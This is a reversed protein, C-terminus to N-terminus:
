IITICNVIPSVNKWPLSLLSWILQHTAEIPLLRPGVNQGFTVNWKADLFFARFYTEVECLFCPSLSVSALCFFFKPKHELCWTHIHSNSWLSSQASFFQHSQNITSSFVRSFEKSQLSILDTLGLPFWGHINVPLVSASTGISQGSSTFFRSMPFSGSAPFAQLCFSFPAASSSITLYITMWQSLSCADSCVRPSLSSCPAQCAATWPTM